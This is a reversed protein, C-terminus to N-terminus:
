DDVRDREAKEDARPPRDPSRWGLIALGGLVAVIVIIVILTTSVPLKRAPTSTVPSLAMALATVTM